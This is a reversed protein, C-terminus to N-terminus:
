LTWTWFPMATIRRSHPAPQGALPRLPKWDTHCSRPIPSHSTLLSWHCLQEGAPLPPHLPGLPCKGCGERCGFGGSDCGHQQSPRFGPGRGHCGHDPCWNEKNQKFRIGKHQSWGVVHGRPPWGPAKGTRCSTRHQPAAATSRTGHGDKEGPRTGRGGGPPSGPFATYLLCSLRVSVPGEVATVQGEWWCGRVSDWLPQMGSVVM